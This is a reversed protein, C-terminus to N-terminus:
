RVTNRYNKILPVDAEAWDLEFLREAPLWVVAKHEHLTIEGDSIRCIFPHLTVSFTPYHHTLPSLSRCVSINIGLEELLERKLCEEPLEGNRMKGGPFEWKLPLSMSESRQACLIRDNQEIIACAVQLITMIFFRGPM